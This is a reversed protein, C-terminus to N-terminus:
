KIIIKKSKSKQYIDQTDYKLTIDRENTLFTNYCYLM